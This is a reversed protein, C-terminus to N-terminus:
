DNQGILIDALSVSAANKNINFKRWNDAKPIQTNLVPRYLRIYEGEKRGLEEELAKPQGAQAYYLVDFKVNLGHRLAENFIEYKHETQLRTAVTHEAIRMLMNKSKGIYVIQGEISISYIGAHEYKPGLGERKYKWYLNEAYSRKRRKGNPM